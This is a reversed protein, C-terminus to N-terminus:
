DGNYVGREIREEQVMGQARVSISGRRWILKETLGLLLEEM